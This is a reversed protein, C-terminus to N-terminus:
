RVIIFTGEATVMIRSVLVTTGYELTVMWEGAMNPSFPVAGTGAKATVSATGAPPAITLTSAATADRAWGDGTYAIDPWPHSKRGRRDPGERETDLLFARNSTIYAAGGSSLIAQYLGDGLMLFAYGVPREMDAISALPGETAFTFGDTVSLESLEDNDIFKWPSAITGLGQETGEYRVAFCATGEKSNSLTWVGGVTATWWNTGNVAPDLTTATGGPATATVTAGEGYPLAVAATRSTVAHAPLTDLDFLTPTTETTMVVAAFAPVATCFGAALLSYTKKM